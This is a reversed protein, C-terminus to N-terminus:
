LAREKSSVNANIPTALLSHYTTIAVCLLTVGTSAGQAQFLPLAAILPSVQRQLTHSDGYKM